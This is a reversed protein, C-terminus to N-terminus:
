RLYDIFNKIIALGTKSSKEPHFQVGFLAKHEISATFEAGYSCTSTTYPTSDYVAYSHVYYLYSNLPINHFLISQQKQKTESWAIHPVTPNDKIKELSCPMFGFGQHQGFECSSDFLIQFGICIGLIPKNQLYFERIPEIFNRKKIEYMAKGFAGDGPLLLADAREIKKYDDTIEVPQGWYEFAKQLSRINGMGFDLELIKPPM